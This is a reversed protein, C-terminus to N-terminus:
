TPSNDLNYNGVESANKWFTIGKNYIDCIKVIDDSPCNGIIKADVTKVYNWHPRSHTNPIGIRNQAYGFMTFFNDIAQAYDETIRARAGFYKLQKQAFSVNGTNINGRCTDAQISAEYNKNFANTALSLGSAALGLGILPTAAGATAASLAAGAGAMLLGTTTQIGIPVSNQAVWARYTDYNWSCVPYGTLGLYEARLGVTDNIGGSGKYARPTLRYQIPTTICGELIFRPALNEYFEYRTDLSEGQSNDVHFYNYPYTYMKNNKPTYLGFGTTHTSKPPEEIIPVFNPVFGRPLATIVTADHIQQPMMLMPCMYMNVITEPKQIYNNLFGSVSDSLQPSNMRIAWLQTGCFVNDYVGAIPIAIDPQTDCIMIVLAYEDLGATLEHYNDYVYEGLTVPEPLINGGIEDTVSHEREIFCREFACDFMWTQMVDIEFTVQANHNNIYEVNKIFAYFWKNGFGSNQFAMYNCNYIEDASCNAEFVGKNVRQYMQSTFTKVPTLTNFYSAQASLSGFYLTDSYTPDLPVGSFLKVISTPRIEM